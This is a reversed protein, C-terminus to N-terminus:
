HGYFLAFNLHTDWDLLAIKNSSVRVAYLHNIDHLCLGAERPSMHGSRVTKVTTTYIQFVATNACHQAHALMCLSKIGPQEIQSDWPM